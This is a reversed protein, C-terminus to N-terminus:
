RREGYRAAILEHSALQRLSLVGGFAHNRSTEQYEIEVVNTPEGSERTRRAREHHVGVFHHEDGVTPISLLSTM